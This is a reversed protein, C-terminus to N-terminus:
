MLSRRSRTWLPYRTWQIQDKRQQRAQDTRIRQLADNEQEFHAKRGPVSISRESDSGSLAHPAKKQASRGIEMESAKDTHSSSAPVGTIPIDKDKITTYKNLTQAIVEADSLETESNVKESHVRKIGRYRFQEDESLDFQYWTKSLRRRLSPAWSRDQYSNRRSLPPQSARKISQSVAPNVPRSDIDDDGRVRIGANLARERVYDYPHGSASARLVLAQSQGSPDVVPQGRRVRSGNYSYESDSSSFYHGNHM